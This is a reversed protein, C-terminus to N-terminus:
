KKQLKQLLSRIDSKLKADNTYSLSKNLVKIAKKTKNVKTLIFGYNCLVIAKEEKSSHCNECIKAAQEANSLAKKYEGVGVYASAISNYLIMTHSDEEGYVEVSIQLAETIFPIAEENQGNLHLFRGYGDLVMGLLANMNKLEECSKNKNLQKLETVNKRCTEIAWKYGTEAESRKDQFAYITALKLSIEILKPDNTSYGLKIRNQMVIKYMIEARELNSRMMYFNAMKEQVHTVAFLDRKGIAFELAKHLDDELEDSYDAESSKKSIRKLLYVMKPDKLTKSDTQHVKLVPSSSKDDSNDKCSQCSSKEKNCKSPPSSDDQCQAKKFQFSHLIKSIIPPKVDYFNFLSSNQGFAAFSAPNSKGQEHVTYFSHNRYVTVTKFCYFSLCLSLCKTM